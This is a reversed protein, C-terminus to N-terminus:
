KHLCAMPRPKKQSLCPQPAADTTPPGADEASPIAISLCPGPNAAEPQPENPAAVMPMAPIKEAAPACAIGLSAVTAAIMAARRQLIASRDTEDTSAHKEDHATTSKQAM